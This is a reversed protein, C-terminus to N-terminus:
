AVVRPGRAMLGVVVFGAGGTMPITVAEDPHMGWKRTNAPGTPRM